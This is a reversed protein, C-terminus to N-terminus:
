PAPSRLPPSSQLFTNDGWCVLNHLATNREISCIHKAGFASGYYASNNQPPNDPYFRDLMLPLDPPVNNGWCQWYEHDIGSDEDYYWHWACGYGDGLAITPVYASDWYHWGVVLGSPPSTQGNASNGWCQMPQATGPEFGNEQSNWVVGSSRVGCTFDKGAALFSWEYYQNSPSSVYPAPITRQQYSNDGWCYARKLGFGSSHERLACAHRAGGSIEVFRNTSSSPVGTINGWCAITGDTKIGCSYEDGLALVAGRTKFFTNAPVTTQGANNKGWCEVTGTSKLGCAHDKGAFVSLYDNSPPSTQNHSSDGWCRIDFARYPWAGSTSQLYECSFSGGLALRGPVDQLTKPPPSPVNVSGQFATAIVDFRSSDTTSTGLPSGKYTTMRVTYQGLEYENFPITYSDLDWFAEDGMSSRALTTELHFSSNYSGYGPSCNCVWIQYGDIQPDVASPDWSIKITRGILETSFQVHSESAPGLAIWGKGNNQACTQLLTESGDEAIAAVQYFIPTGYRYSRSASFTFTSADVDYFTVFQDSGWDLAEIPASKYIRYGVAGLVPKWNLTMGYYGSTWMTPAEFADPSQPDSGWACENQNTYTDGDADDGGDHVGDNDSDADFPSTGSAIECSLTLGDADVDDGRLARLHLIMDAADLVGDGPSQASDGLPAVDARTFADGSLTVEGRLHQQLGILDRIDIEGDGNFDGDLGLALSSAIFCSAILLVRLFSTRSM